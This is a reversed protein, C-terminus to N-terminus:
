VERMLEGIMGDWAGSSMMQGYKGDKVPRLELDLGVEKAILNTLDVCYGEFRENGTWPPGGDTQNKKYTM